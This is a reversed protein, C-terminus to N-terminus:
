STQRAPVIVRNTKEARWAVYAPLISEKTGNRLEKFM